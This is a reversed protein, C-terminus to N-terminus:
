CEVWKLAAAAAVALALARDGLFLELLVPGSRRKRHEADDARKFTQEHDPRWESEEITTYAEEAHVTWGKHESISALNEEM